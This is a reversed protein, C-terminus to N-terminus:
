SGNPDIIFNIVSQKNYTLTLSKQNEKKKKSISNDLPVVMM